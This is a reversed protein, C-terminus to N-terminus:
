SAVRREIRKERESENRCTRCTRKNRWIYTNQETFEHGKQCRNTRQAIAGSAMGRRWNEYPTVPELHGPNICSPNRCLHDLHLGPPIEGVHVTYSVRHVPWLEGRFKMNGYGSRTPGLFLTCGSNPEPISRRELLLEPANKPVCIRNCTVRRTFNQATETEKRILTAGCTKCFKQTNHSQEWKTRKNSWACRRNCFRRVAFTAPMEGTRKFLEKSCEVCSKM